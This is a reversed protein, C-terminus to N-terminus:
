KKLLTITFEFTKPQIIIGSLNLYCKIKLKEPLSILRVNNSLDLNEGLTINEFSYPLESLQNNNLKLSGGIKINGFSEPLKSIQNQVLNLSNKIKINGFIEQLLYIGFM